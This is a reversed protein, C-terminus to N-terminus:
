LGRSRSRQKAESHMNLVQDLAVLADYSEDTAVVVERKDRKDMFALSPARKPQRTFARSGLLRGMSGSRTAASTAAASEFPSTVGKLTVYDVFEMPVHELKGPEAKLYDDPTMVLLFREANVLRWADYAAIGLSGLAVGGLLLLLLLTVVIGTFGHEFNSPITVFLAPIFLLLGVVATAAWGLLVRRVYDRRLPWVFWGSPLPADSRAIDVIQQADM